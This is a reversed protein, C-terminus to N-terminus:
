QTFLTKRIACGCVQAFRYAASLQQVRYVVRNGTVRVSRAAASGTQDPACGVVDMPLTGLVVAVAPLLMAPSPKVPRAGCNSTPGMADSSCEKKSAHM